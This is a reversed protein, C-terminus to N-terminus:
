SFCLVRASIYIYNLYHNNFIIHKWFRITDYIIAMEWIIKSRKNYNKFRPCSINIGIIIIDLLRRPLYRENNSIIEVNNRQLLNILRHKDNDYSYRKKMVLIIVQIM